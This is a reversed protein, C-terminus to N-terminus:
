PFQKQEGYQGQAHAHGNQGVLDPQRQSESREKGPQHDGLRAVAQRRQRLRQWQLVDERGDEEHRNPHQYVGLNKYLLRQLDGQQRREGEQDFPEIM